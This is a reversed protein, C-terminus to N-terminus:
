PSRSIQWCKGITRTMSLTQGSEGLLTPLLQIVMRQLHHIIDMTIKDMTTKDTTIKPVRRESPNIIWISISIGTLIVEMISSCATVMTKELDTAGPMSDLRGLIAVVAVWRSTIRRCTAGRTPDM